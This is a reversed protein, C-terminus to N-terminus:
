SSGLYIWRLSSALYKLRVSSTRAPLVIDAGTLTLIRNAPTSTADNTITWAFAVMSLIVAECGDLINGNGDLPQAFGSTSFAGTPGTIVAFSTALAINSNVGNALTIGTSKTAIRKNAVLDFSVTFTLQLGHSQHALTSAGHYQSWTNFLGCNALVHGGSDGYHLPNTATRAVNYPLLWNAAYSGEFGTLGGAHFAFDTGGGGFTGVGHAGGIKAKVVGGFRYEHDRAAPTDWRTNVGFDFPTGDLKMNNPRVILTSAHANVSANVTNADAGPFVNGDFEVLAGDLQFAAPDLTNDKFRVLSPQGAASGGIVRIDAGYAHNGHIDFGNVLAKIHISETVNHNFSNGHVIGHGDNGLQNDVWLGYTNLNFASGSINCNGGDVFAGYTGGYGQINTCTAYEGGRLGLAAGYIADFVRLGHITPGQNAQNGVPVYIGDGGPGYVYVDRIMANSIGGTHIGHNLSGAGWTSLIKLDAVRADDATLKVVPQNTMDKLVSQGGVGILSQGQVALSGTFVPVNYTRAGLRITKGTAMAATYAAHDDTTGDGVAHSQELTVPVAADVVAPISTVKVADNTPDDVLTAGPFVLTARSPLVTTGDSIPPFMAKLWSIPDM